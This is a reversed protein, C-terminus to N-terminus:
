KWTTIRIRGRWLNSYYVWRRVGPGVSSITIEVNFNPNIQTNIARMAESLAILSNAFTYLNVQYPRGGFQIVVQDAPFQRLDIVAM